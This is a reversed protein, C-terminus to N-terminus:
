LEHVFLKWFLRIGALGSLKSNQRFKPFIVLYSSFLPHLLRRGTIILAVRVNFTIVRLRTRNKAPHLSPINPSEASTM